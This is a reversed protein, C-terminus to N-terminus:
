PLVELFKNWVYHVNKLHFYHSFNQYVLEPIIGKHLIASLSFNFLKLCCFNFISFWVAACFSVFYLYTDGWRWCRRLEALKLMLKLNKNWKSKISNATWVMMSQRLLWFCLFKYSTLIMCGCKWVSYYMTWIPTPKCDANTNYCLASVYSM